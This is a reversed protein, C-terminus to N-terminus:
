RRRGAPTRMFGDWRCETWGPSCAEVPLITAASSAGEQEFRLTHTWTGPETAYLAVSVYVHQGGQPGHQLVLTADDGFLAVEGSTADGLEVTAENGAPPARDDCATDTDRDPDSPGCAQFGCGALAFLMAPLALNAYADRETVARLVDFAARRAPDLPTRRQPRRPRQPRTM